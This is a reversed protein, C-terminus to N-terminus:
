GSPTIKISYDGDSVVSVNPYSGPSVASTGSTAQSDIAIDTDATKDFSAM